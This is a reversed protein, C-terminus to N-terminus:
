KEMALPILDVQRIDMVAGARKNQPRVVLSYMGPRTFKVHGIRQQTYKHYDSTEEVKFTLKEAGVEVQVDSGGNGKGCGLKIEVEFTGPKTVEFEWEAWDQPNIWYGLCKKEEKPEYRMTVSHTIANSAHLMIPVTGEQKILSGEPAPRFTIAKFNMVPNGTTGKCSMRLTFPKEQELYFRGVPLTVYRNWSGTTRSLITFLKGAVSFQLEMGSGEVAACTLEIDYMGWRTPKFEWVMSDERRSGFGIQGESANERADFASFLIRGGSFQATKNGTELIIKAPLSEPTKSPLELQIQSTNPDVTWPLAERQVGHSLYAGTIQPFSTPVILKGSKPWSSVELTGTGATDLFVQESAPQLIFNAVCIVLCFSHPLQM